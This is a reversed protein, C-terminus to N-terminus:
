LIYKVVFRLLFRPELNEMSPVPNKKLIMVHKTNKVSIKHFPHRNQYLLHQNPNKLYQNPNKPYQNQNKINQNPDAHPHNLDAHPHNLGAHDVLGALNRITLNQTMRNQIMHNQINKLVVRYITNIRIINTVNEVGTKVIHVHDRVTAIGKVRGSIILIRESRKQNGGTHRLTM